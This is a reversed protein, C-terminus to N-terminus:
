LTAPNQWKQKLAPLSANLLGVSLGVTDIIITSVIGIHILYIGALCTATPLVSAVLNVTMTRDLEAVLDFLTPLQQLTGDLLIIHATDTAITTAGGLSISVAAPADDPVFGVFGVARGARQRQEILSDVDTAVLESFHHDIGTPSAPDTEDSILYLDLGRQRLSDIIAAGATPDLTLLSSKDFILTDVTSVMELARGEKILIGRSASLSLFNLVSLPSTLRLDYGFYSTLVAIGRYAGLFPLTAGSLLLMPLVAQAAIQEGQLAHPTQYNATAQLTATIQAAISEQGTREVTIVLRGTQVTTAAFVAEGTRRTIPQTEGTLPQQDVIAYGEVVQGDVPIIEGSSIVVADGVQVAELPRSVEVGNQRVWVLRPMERLITELQPQALHRTRLVFQEGSFYLLQVFALPTLYGFSLLTAGFISNMSEVGVRRERVMQRVGTAVFGWSNYLLLPVGAVTLLPMSLLTGGSLLGLTVLSLNRQRTLQQDFRQQIALGHDPSTRATLQDIFRKKSRQKYLQSAGYATSGVLLLEAIM